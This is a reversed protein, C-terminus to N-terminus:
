EQLNVCSETTQVILDFVRECRDISSTLPNFTARLYVEGRWLSTTMVVGHQRKLESAILENQSNDGSKLQFCVLGWHVPFIVKFKDSAEVLAAFHLAM